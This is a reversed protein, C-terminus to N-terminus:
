VEKYGVISFPPITLDQSNCENNKIYGVDGFILNQYTDMKKYFVESTPNIFFNLNKTGTLTKVDFLQIHVSGNELTYFKGIGEINEPRSLKLFEAQKRLYICSKLYSVMDMRKDVIDYKMMNYRDGSKYTNQHMNKSLGIEQGMHIFPVGFSFCVAANILKVIRLITAEDEIHMSAIIKDYLTGNDHCEVYNISQNATLFKTSYTYNLVSGLFVYKFGNVYSLDGTLYGKEHFSSESTSGKVIDRYADNFFAIHPLSKANNMSSRLEEALKTPMNWGEGYIMFDPKIKIADRYIKMLTYKDVIGMLDFRFGDIGYEKIWFNCCDIILKSVMKRESAVDNGCFSGNSMTGNLNKRFYYNPVVAEFVSFQYEFVHNYVVDMIVKINNHHLAKVMKKLDLIRSYPDKVNSAFSGEPVFYQYPDYGWNYTPIPNEEDTTFFDYIPLLQVHTIGLYKLYDLGAPNNGKTTRKEEALGLYKGKHEINTNNNITFDRVSLEYIIADVYNKYQPLNKEELDIRCKKFNIVVNNKSNSTSGKGYPDLTTRTVGSNEIVYNYYAGDYNGELKLRYIGKSERIMEYFVFNKGNDDSIKLLVKNSTPAWLVFETYSSHYNAGLDNGGYYYDEDFTSFSTADNVDLSCIGIGDVTIFYSNGLEIPREVSLEYVSLSGYMSTKEIKLESVDKDNCCLLFKQNQNRSVDSVLTLRIRKYSILSANMSVNNM